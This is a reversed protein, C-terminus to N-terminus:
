FFLLVQKLANSAVIAVQVFIGKSSSAASVMPCLEPNVIDQEAATVFADKIDNISQQDLNALNIPDGVTTEILIIHSTVNTTLSTDNTINFINTGDTDNAINFIDTDNTDNHDTSTHLTANRFLATDNTINFINTGDTDNHLTANRFLATEFASQNFCQSPASRSNSNRNTNRRLMWFVGIGAIPAGVRIGRARSRSGSSGSGSTGRSKGGSSGGGGRGGSSKLIRVVPLLEDSPTKGTLLDNQGTPLHLASTIACPSLVISLAAPVTIANNGILEGGFIVAVVILVLHPRM